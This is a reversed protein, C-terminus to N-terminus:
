CGPTATRWKGPAVVRRDAGSGLSLADRAWTLDGAVGPRIEVRDFGVADPAPRLGAVSEILWAGVSGFMPHNHSFTNDSFKWTEWLTTAGSDLMHRWGPFGRRTALRHATEHEGLRSLTDLLFRTGFIGTAVHGDHDRIVSEVLRRKAASQEEPPVLDFAFAAAQCAQSGTDFVGTGRKLFKDLFAARIAEALADFRAADGARNLL